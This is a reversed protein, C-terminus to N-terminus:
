GEIRRSFLISALEARRARRQDTRRLENGGYISAWKNVTAVFERQTPPWLSRIAAEHRERELRAQERASITPPAHAKADQEPTSPRLFLFWSLAGVATVMLLWKKATDDVSPSGRGKKAANEAFAAMKRATEADTAM